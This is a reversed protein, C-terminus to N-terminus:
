AEDFKVFDSVRRPNVRVTYMRGDIIVTEGDAIAIARAEEALRQEHFARCATLVSARVIGTAYSNGRELSAKVRAAISAEDNCGKVLEGDVGVDGFENIILALRRGKANQLLHRILTTKGAGLFGTVITVPTKELSM